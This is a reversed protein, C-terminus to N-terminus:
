VTDGWPFQLPDDLRSHIEFNYSDGDPTGGCPNEKFNYCQDGNVAMAFFDAWGEAWACQATISDFLQHGWCDPWPYWWGANGMFQHGTEHVATDMSQINYDSIFIYGPGTYSACPGGYCLTGSTWYATVSGPDYHTGNRVDNTNVFHWANRIDEFIPVAQYSAPKNQHNIDFNLIWNPQNDNNLLEVDSDFYYPDESGVQDVKTEPYDLKVRIFINLHPDDQDFYNTVNTFSYVGNPSTYTSLNLYYIHNYHDMEYLDIKLEKGAIKTGTTGFNRPEYTIQGTITVISGPNAEVRFPPMVNMVLMLILLANIIINISKKM